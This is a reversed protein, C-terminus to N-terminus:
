RHPIDVITSTIRRFNLAKQTLLNWCSHRPYWESNIVHRYSQKGLLIMDCFVLRGKERQIHNGNEM